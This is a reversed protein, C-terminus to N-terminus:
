ATAAGAEADAGAEAADCQRLCDLCLCGDFRERLRALTQAQLTLATCACPATDNAGCRFAAGCRACRDDASAASVRGSM